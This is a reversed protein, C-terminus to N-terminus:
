ARDPRETPLSEIWADLDVARFVPKRGCYHAILEGTAVAEQITTKSLGTAEVAGNTDYSVAKLEIGM